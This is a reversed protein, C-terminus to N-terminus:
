AQDHQEFLSLAQGLVDSFSRLGDTMADGAKFFGDSQVGYGKPGDHWTRGLDDNGGWPAGEAGLKAQLSSMADGMRGRVDNLDNLVARLQDPTVGFDLTGGLEDDAM